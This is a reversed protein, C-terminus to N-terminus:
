LWFIPALRVLHLRAISSLYNWHAMADPLRRLQRPMGALGCFHM